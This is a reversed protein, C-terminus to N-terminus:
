NVDSDDPAAPLVGINQLFIRVGLMANYVFAAGDPADEPPAGAAFGPTGAPPPPAPPPLVLPASGAAGHLVRGVLSRVSDVEDQSGPFASQTM